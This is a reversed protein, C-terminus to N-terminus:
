EITLVVYFSALNMSVLLASVDIYHTHQIHQCLKIQAVFDLSMNVCASMCSSINLLKQLRRTHQCLKFLTGFPLSHQGINYHTSKPQFPDASTSYTALAQDPDGNDLFTSMNHQM